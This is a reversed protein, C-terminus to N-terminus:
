KDGHLDTQPDPKGIVEIGGDGIYFAVDCSNIWGARNKKMKQSTHM